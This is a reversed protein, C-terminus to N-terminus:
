FGREQREKTNKTRDTKLKTMKPWKNEDMNDEQHNGTDENTSIM